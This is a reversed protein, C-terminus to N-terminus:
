DRVGFFNRFGQPDLREISINVPYLKLNRPNLRETLPEVDNPENAHADADIVMTM